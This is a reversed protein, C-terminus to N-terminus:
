PKKGGSTPKVRPSSPPSNKKTAPRPSKTDSARGTRAGDKTSETAPVLVVQESFRLTLGTLKPDNVVDSRQVIRGQDRLSQEWTEINEAEQAVAQINLQGGGAKSATASLLEVQTVDAAPASTSLLRMEDLWAIDGRAFNDLKQARDRDVKGGKVTKEHKAIEAQLASIQQDLGSFQIWILMLILLAVAGAAGGALAYIRRRDPPRPRQRPHLFDVQQPRGAAAEALMGLLPAFTGPYEPRQQRAQGELEVMTFPDQLEVGAELTLEDELLKKLAAHHKGDGFIVVQEVKRGGLQNQAAIVTRRIEGLLARGQAEGGDSEPLRITRPFIVKGGAMVTLDAEDSLLDVLMRCRNDARDGILLSATAFPRLVLQSCTIGAASCTERIQKVLEPSIAAALVNIGGDRNEELPVFDLPWDDGLTTFQRMAQFRVLDPLEEPPTPPTTLFRLEINARGVAVLAESRALGHQALAAAVAAGIEKEGVAAEAGSRKPLPVTFAQEVVAATGRARGVAVRAESADWEIALLRVM